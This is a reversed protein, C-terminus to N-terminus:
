ELVSLWKGNYDAVAPMAGTPTVGLWQAINDAQVQPAAVLAEYSVWYAAPLTALFGIARQWEARHQQVSATHNHALSSLATVDPRRVIVVFRADAFDAADWWGDGDTGENGHPVSRHVVEEGVYDRVIEALIRTGSSEPGCCVVTM